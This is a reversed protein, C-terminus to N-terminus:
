RCFLGVRLNAPAAARLYINGRGKTGTFDICAQYSGPQISVGSTNNICYYYEWGPGKGAFGSGCQGTSVVTLPMVRESGFAVSSVLLLLSVFITKM